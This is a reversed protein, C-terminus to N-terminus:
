FIVYQKLQSYYTCFKLFPRFNLLFSMFLHYLQLKNFNLRQPNVRRRQAHVIVRAATSVEPNLKAAQPDKVQAFIDAGPRKRKEVGGGGRGWRTRLRKNQGQKLPWSSIICFAIM